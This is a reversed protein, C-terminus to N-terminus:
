YAGQMEFIRRPNDVMMTQIDAESVGLEKLAPIVTDSILVFSRTPSNREPADEPYFDITSCFDHSLVMQNAYGMECLKAVTAVRKELSLLRENGFRDMGIFSGRELVKQLYDLNDTDGCHGIIVRRLDVGEEAFIDQQLLGQQNAAVTHTSIPVGTRRQLRASVQLLKRNIDTIGAPGTSVKIIAAQSNTGEIGKTIDPLLVETLQDATWGNFSPMDMFYFGTAAIIQIEAKEAVEKIIGIDRGLNIPTVDVLTKIGREKAARADKVAKTVVRDRDIWNPLSARMAWDCTLIHEHILTFGLDDTAIPGTVTQVAPM